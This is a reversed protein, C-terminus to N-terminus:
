SKTKGITSEQPRAHTWSHMCAYAYSKLTRARALTRVHTRRVRVSLVRKLADAAGFIIKELGMKLEKEEELKKSLKNNEEHLDQKQMAEMEAEDRLIVYSSNLIVYYSM